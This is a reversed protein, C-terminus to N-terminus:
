ARDRPDAASSPSPRSARRSGNTSRTSSGPWLSGRACRSRGRLGAGARRASAAITPAIKQWLSADMWLHPDIGYVDQVAILEAPDISSPSVAVTPKRQGFQKLVEGLQGELAYGSYFIVDAEQFKRVDSASARYLHPDVGPGMLAEVEACPGAVNAAVDAIMGITALVQPPDAAAAPWPGRRRLVLTLALLLWAARAPRHRVPSRIM